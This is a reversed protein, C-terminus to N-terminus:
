RMQEDTAQLAWGNGDPDTFSAYRGWPAENIDGIALGAARLRQHDADIDDTELVVGQQCGPPMQPFWNVLTISVDGSGPALQIWRSPGMPMDRLVRFGMVDRYFELSRQPDSVPISIIRIFRHSM